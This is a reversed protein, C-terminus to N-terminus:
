TDSLEGKESYPSAPVYGPVRGNPFPLGNRGSSEWRSGARSRMPPTASMWWRLRVAHVENSM